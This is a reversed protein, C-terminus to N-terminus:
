PLQLLFFFHLSDAVNGVKCIIEIGYSNEGVSRIGGVKEVRSIVGLPVALSFPM